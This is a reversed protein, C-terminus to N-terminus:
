CEDWCCAIDVKAFFEAFSKDAAGNFKLDICINSSLNIVKAKRLAKMIKTDIAELKNNDAQFDTIANHRPILDFTLKVLLNNSLILTKLRLLKSFIKRPLTEIENSSLDIFEVQTVDGFTEEEILIIKNYRIYINKLKDFGAFDHEHLSTLKSRDILMTELSPFSKALSIPLFKMAQDIAAFIIVGKIDSKSQHNGNLKLIKSKPYDISFKEAKCMYGDLSATESLSMQDDTFICSLEVPAVCNEIIAKEIASLTEGPHELDVCLNKKLDLSSLKTLPKFFNVSIFKIKNNHLHLISISELGNLVGDSIISLFNDNLLLKELKQLGNFAGKELMELKNFSLDLAILNALDKFSAIPIERLNNETITM